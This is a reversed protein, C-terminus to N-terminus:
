VHKRLAANFGDAYARAKGRDEGFYALVEKGLAVVVSASFQYEQRVTAFVEECDKHHGYGQFSLCDKSCAYIM